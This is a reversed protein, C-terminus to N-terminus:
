PLGSSSGFSMVRLGRFETYTYHFDCARFGLGVVRCGQVRIM